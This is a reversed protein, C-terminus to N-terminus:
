GRAGHWLLRPLIKTGNWSGQPLKQAQRQFRAGRFLSRKGQGATPAMNALAILSFLVRFLPLIAAGISYNTNFVNSHILRLQITLKSAKTLETAMARRSERSRTQSKKRPWELAPSPSPQASAWSPCPWSPPYGHARPGVGAEPPRAQAAASRVPRFHHGGFGESCALPAPLPIM